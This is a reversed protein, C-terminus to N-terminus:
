KKFISFSSVMKGQWNYYQLKNILIIAFNIKNCKRLTSTLTMNVAFAPAPCFNPLLNVTTGMSVFTTNKDFFLLSM